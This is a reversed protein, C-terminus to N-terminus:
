KGTRIHVTALMGPIIPLKKGHSLLTGTKTRVQVLYYSETHGNKDETITDASINEVEADLGGYISFDYASLKVTADQGPHIFAVDSPKVKTEVLLTDELPVIEMIEVGPQIVGGLSNAKILKVIGAV